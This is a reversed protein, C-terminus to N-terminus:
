GKIKQILKKFFSVKPKVSDALVADIVRKSNNKDINVFFNEVRDIYDNKCDNDIIKILADVASDLDYCVPGFGDDEYEFFGKDYTQTEYFEEKDFQTYVIPKKLYAFDFAITSYDTVMVSSEAFVKNYDIFGENIAFVDNQKFDVAQKRFIPHLCFLGTYGKERMKALLREDNILGNYFKYYDTDVFGDFYVSSTKDDYAGKISKRWSPLVLLQKKRDDYLADFRPLGTIVCQEETMNYRGDIIAQREKVGTNFFIKIDKNYKNLWGSCDGCNVGHNMFYFDFHYLDVFYQRDAEFANITFEGASSSIIKDALLFYLKFEEDEFYLVEGIAELRAKVEDSADRGITFIPRVGEPTNECIYKFVVEGSDGANDIRDSFLWVSGKHQQKKRFKFYQARIKALDDRGIEHLYDICKKEAKKIYNSMNAPKSIKIARRMCRVVYDGYVMYSPSFLNKTSIFKSYVMSVPTEGEGFCLIPKLIVEKEGVDKLSFSCKGLYYYSPHGLKGVVNYPDYAELTPEAVQSGFQLKFRVEGDKNCRFLWQAIFVDVFLKDGKVDLAAIKCVKGKQNPLDLSWMDKYRLTANERDYDIMEFLTKGYKIKFAENKKYMTKHKPNNLLIYDDIKELLLKVRELYDKQEQEDLVELYYDHGIRWYLDYAVMSQVYPIIEGYLEDCYRMLEMHYYVLSNIYFSKDMVQKNVASDGLNRRRYLYLAECILGVKRKKLMIKNIFTSDEGFKLRSDFRIDGVADSRIFTTAATSQVSFWEEKDDLNAVRTGNKFKYDLSHFDENEEFFQIRAALVDIEDYHEEFFRYANEFSSEEWKDDPDLFTLYKADVYQFATNRANSVGGNPIKQYVINDPYMEKYKLCIAESNDPSGDNIMILQIKDFGITQNVLSLIAEEVYDEVNYIPMIVSFLYKHEQQM